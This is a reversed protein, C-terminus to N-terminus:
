SLVAQTNHITASRLYLGATGKAELKGRGMVEEEEKLRVRHDATPLWIPLSARAKM